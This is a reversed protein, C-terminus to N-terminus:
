ASHFYEAPNNHRQDHQKEYEDAHVASKAAPHYEITAAHGAPLELGSPRIGAHGCIRVTVDMHVGIMMGLLIM